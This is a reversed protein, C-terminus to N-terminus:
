LLSDRLDWWLSIQHTVQSCGCSCSLWGLLGSAHSQTIKLLGLVQQPYKKRSLGAWLTWVLPVHFSSHSFAKCVVIPPLQESQTSGQKYCASAESKNGFSSHVRYVWISDLYGGGFSTIMPLSPITLMKKSGDLHVDRSPANARHAQQKMQRWRPLCHPMKRFKIFSVSSLGSCLLLSPKGLHPAWMLATKKQASVHLEKAPRIVGVSVAEWTGTPLFCLWLYATSLQCIGYEKQLLRSPFCSPWFDM